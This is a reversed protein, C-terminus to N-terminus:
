TFRLIERFLVWSSSITRRLMVVKALEKGSVHQKEATEQATYALPHIYVEYSVKAEDLVAKLKSLIPM